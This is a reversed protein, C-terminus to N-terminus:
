LFVLLLATINSVIHTIILVNIKNIFFCLIYKLIRGGDLPYITVMNFIFILINIYIITIDTFTFICILNIAPGALTIFLKKLTLLNTKLIKKNYGDTNVRFYVSFGVPMIELKKPKLGLIIGCVYTAPKM